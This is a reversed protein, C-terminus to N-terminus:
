GIKPSLIMWCLLEKAIRPTHHKCDMFINNIFKLGSRFIVRPCRIKTSSLKISSLNGELISALLHKPTCCRSYVKFQYLIHCTYYQCWVSTNLLVDFSVGLDCFLLFRLSTKFFGTMYISPLPWYTPSRLDEQALNM